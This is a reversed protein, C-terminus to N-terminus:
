ESPPCAKAEECSPAKSVCKPDLFIGGEEQLRRCTDGFKEDQQNVWMPTDDRNKCQLAELNQEAEDCLDTDKVVIPGPKPGIPEPQNHTPCGIVLFALLFILKRM